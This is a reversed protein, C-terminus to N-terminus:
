FPIDYLWDPCGFVIVEAPPRQEYKMCKEQGREKTGYQVGIGNESWHECNLCSHFTADDVLKRHILQFSQEQTTM